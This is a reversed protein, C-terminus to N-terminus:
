DKVILGRRLRSVSEPGEDGVIFTESLAYGNPAEWAALMMHITMGPELVTTDEATVSITEDIWGVGPQAIGLSYGIRARKDYGYPKTAAAWAGEVTSVTEGAKLFELVRCLGTNAVEAYRKYSDPPTGLYVTRSLGAAYSKHVGGLEYMVPTGDRYVDDFWSLHPAATRPGSGTFPYFVDSSPINPLGRALAYQVKAAVEAEHVGPEIADIAVSMAHDSIKGAGRIADLELPTKVTRVWEVLLGIDVFSAGPLARHMADMGAPSLGFSDQGVAIRGHHWGRQRILEGIFTMPHDNGSVYSDDYGFVQEPTLHTLWSACSVDMDRLVLLLEASDAHLLVAQPVYYSHADYGTLYCISRPDTVVLLDFNKEQASCAVREVREAFEHAPFRPVRPWTEPSYTKSRGGGATGDFSNDM